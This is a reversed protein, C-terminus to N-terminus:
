QFYIWSWLQQQLYVSFYISGVIYILYLHNLKSVHYIYLPNFVVECFYHARLFSQTSFISWKCCLPFFCKWTYSFTSPFLCLWLMLFFYSFFLINSICSFTFIAFPSFVLSQPLLLAVTPLATIFCEGWVHASKELKFSHSM